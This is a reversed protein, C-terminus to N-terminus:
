QVITTNSNKPVYTNTFQSTVRANTLLSELQGKLENARKNAENNVDFAYPRVGLLQQLVKSGSGVDATEVQKITSLVRSTPPLNLLLNMRDPHLSIYLTGTAGTKTQYKVQTYGILSKIAAPADKFAAANTVDSLPKGQFFNYGTMQELPVRILPSISGLLQNPQLSSFPQELPTGLSSYLEVNQGKKSKLFTIGTQVWDPLAAKEADTLQGGSFVDSLNTLATVQAATRGPSTLLTGVQQELNKRTFTYFPIIRRMFTKEFNTLNGYDFLFQKTRNAAMTVDGTNRLNAVFNLIRAQGEVAQGVNRGWQFPAFNQSYPLVKSAISKAKAAGTAYEPFLNQMQESSTKKIDDPSITSGPNFAINHDRITQRLEGYSWIHGTADTFYPKTMLDHLEDKAKDAEAGIGAAVQQLKNVQSDKHLIDISMAHNAPNLAHYGIDNLNLFVNSLANRGHFAPFVSTVSAKWLGQVRDFNKLAQSTAEDNIVSGVFKEIRSAVAPHFVLEEGQKNMVNMIKEGEKSIGSVAVKRWSAPAMSKPMGMTQAAERMFRSSVGSEVNDFTRQLHATVVNEDFGTFGAAKAEEITDGMKRTMAAEVRQKPPFLSGVSSPMDEKLLIHPVHNDRHALTIGSDTLFQYQKETYGLFQKYANALRADAPIKRAEIADTLMKAENVNLNNGRVIDTLDKTFGTKLSASLDKASTELNTFEEPLRQWGQSTHVMSPDFLAQVSNRIPATMHDVLNMGPILKLASSVRQGSVISKGLFKIGGRDLLTESLQPFKELLNSMALKAYDKNLPADISTKLLTDLEKGALDYTEGKSALQMAVAKGTSQYEVNKLFKYVDAGESSLAASSFADKGTAAAAKELLQVKPLARLGMLGEGAGFTVYTLPDTMIDVATRTIFSGVKMMTSENGPQQGFIVDSVKTHNKIADSVSQTPSLIGAVTESPISLVSVFDSFANKFGNGITSLISTTPHVLEDAASGVAGGQQQALTLLGNVSDTGNSLAGNTVLPGYDINKNYPNTGTSGPNTDYPNPNTM